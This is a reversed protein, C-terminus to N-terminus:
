VASTLVQEVLHQFSVKERAARTRLEKLTTEPLTVSVQRRTADKDARRYYVGYLRDDTFVATAGTDLILSTQEGDVTAYVTSGGTNLFQRFDDVTTDADPTWDEFTAHSSDDHPLGFKISIGSLRSDPTDPVQHFTLEVAGYKLIEFPRMTVSRDGAPGWRQEVAEPTMGLRVEGVAGRKLFDILKAM